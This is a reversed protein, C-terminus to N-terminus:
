VTILSEVWRIDNCPLAGGVLAAHEAPTFDTLCGHYAEVQASLRNMRIVSGPFVEPLDHLHSLDVGLYRVYALRYKWSFVLFTTLVYGLTRLRYQGYFTPFEKLVERVLMATEFRREGYDFDGSEAELPVHPLIPMPYSQQMKELMLSCFTSVVMMGRPGLATRYYGMISKLDKDRSYHRLMSALAEDLVEDSLVQEDCADASWYGTVDPILCKSLFMVHERARVDDGDLGLKSRYLEAHKWFRTLLECLWEGDFMRCAQGDGADYELGCLSPERVKVDMITTAVVLWQERASVDSLAAQEGELWTAELTDFVQAVGGLCRDPMAWVDNRGLIGYKDCFDRAYM